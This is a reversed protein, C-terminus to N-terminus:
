STRRRQRSRREGVALHWSPPFDELKAQVILQRIIEAHSEDFRSALEELRAWASADLRLMFRKGYYRSDHSRHSSAHRMGAKGAQWSKPFDTRSIQCMMHRVWPAMDVGAAQAAERVQRHLEAEVTFFCSTTQGPVRPAVPATQGLGWQLVQRLVEARSRHFATTLEELKARTKEDLAADM